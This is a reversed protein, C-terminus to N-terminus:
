GARTEGAPDDPHEIIDGLLASVGRPHPEPTRRMLLAYCAVGTPIPLWFSVLRYAVVGVAAVAAPTGFGILTPILVAEVVGLGGPTIPIAAIVNALGYAVLLGVIPPRPGFADLMLWLAAADLLWNLGAAVTARLLVGETHVLADLQAGVTRVAREVSEPEIFPLRGLIRSGEHALRERGRQLALIAAGLVLLLAAGVGAASAYIPHFGSVPISALLACWLILNLVAASGIAQAGLAFALEARPVGARGYIRYNVAATTAAGGPLVHNIGMSALATGTCFALSLHRQRPLLTLTLEGYSVIAAIEAAVAVAVMWPSVGSVTSLAARAGGVQPVVFTHVVFALVLLKAIGGVSRRTLRGMTWTPTASDGPEATSM